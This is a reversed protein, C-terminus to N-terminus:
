PYPTSVNHGLKKAFYSLVDIAVKKISSVKLLKLDFETCKSNPVVSIYKSTLLWKSIVAHTINQFFM